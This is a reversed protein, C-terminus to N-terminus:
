VLYRGTLSEACRWAEEPRGEYLVRGGEKGSGPGFDILWDAARVVDIQHEIVMVTNKKEILEDFISFLAATDKRSLGTTPEDLIFLKSENTLQLALKLRQLEGGSLTDLTQGLTLYGLGIKNLWTLPKLCKPQDEFFSSADVLTLSLVEDIALERYQYSLAEQSYRKGQCAECRSRVPEMFALEIEIFGKGKCNPCAGGGNFSFLGSKVQNAQAFLQRIPDFLEIYSAITSRRSGRISKQDVYVTEDPYAKALEKAFSSKGSGAVGTVAILGEKPLSISVNQLNNLTLSDVKFTQDMTMKKKRRKLDSIQKQNTLWSQYDMVGVIEGGKAGAEPGLEVITEALQIIEEDHDILLMTNGKEKIATLLQRIAQIDYPHLGISPEDLIYLMDSLSSGIYRVLKIRQSEGGSLSSTERALTLYNLGVQCLYGIQRQLQEVIPGAESDKLQTMFAQLERLELELCEGIHLGNLKCSLVEQNLRYGQCKPCLESQSIREIAPQYKQYGKSPNKIFTRQIRPILGEYLSSRYWNKKPHPPKMQESYLLVEMEEPAYDALKKENDFLGSDVYRKWRYSGPEFTPFNIAGENLSKTQDLLEPIRFTHVRGLGQCHVCMGAPNNFSFRDSFGVFPQGFRSYLLRLAPNIDAATGVTSRSNDGLSKQNVMVVPSLNEISTVEPRGYHPLRNRLFSPYTDALQQQAEAAITNIVLSTKGSGSVGVFATIQNKAIALNVGKLNNTTAGQIIISKTM